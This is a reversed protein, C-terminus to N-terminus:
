SGFRVRATGNVIPAVAVDRQVCQVCIKPPAAPSKRAVWIMAGCGACQEQRSAVKPTPKESVRFCVFCLQRGVECYM